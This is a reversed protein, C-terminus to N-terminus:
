GAALEWVQLDEDEGLLRCRRRLHEALATWHDLWWRAEPAVVLARSGARRMRELEEVAHEGDRPRGWFQGRRELFPVCARGAFRGHVWWAGDDLVVLRADAPTVRDVLRVHRRFRAHMARVEAPLAVAPAAAPSSVTALLRELVRPADFHEAAVERAARAHADYGADLRELADLAGAPDDFALVGRDAQLWTSFGTDQTVVPRGSALYCASRESFWGTRAAVYAQKAISFEGMSERLYRRYDWPDRSVTAADVTRWGSAGLRAHVEPEAALALELPLPSSAPLDIYPEFSEAKVGFRREGTEVGAYSRWALISTLRGNQRGRAVEWRELDVPQRTPQWPIGDHPATTRAGGLNEGFSFFWQHALARDLWGPLVRNKAQMFVPDTDILVRVPIRGLLEDLSTSASVNLLVDASAVFSEAREAGGGLWRGTPRDFFAWCTGLGLAAFARSAYAVGPGPEGRLNESDEVFLCRHGLARLGLLYQAYHWFMGGLPTRAVYGTVVVNLGAASRRADSVDPEAARV